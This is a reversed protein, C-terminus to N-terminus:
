ALMVAYDAIDAGDEVWLRAVFESMREEMRFSRNGCSYSCLITSGMMGLCPRKDFFMPFKM